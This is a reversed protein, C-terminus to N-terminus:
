NGNSLEKLKNLKNALQTLGKKQNNEVMYKIKADLAEQLTKHVKSKNKTIYLLYTVKGTPYVLARVGPIKTSVSKEGMGNKRKIRSLTEERYPKYSNYLRGMIARDLALGDYNIAHRVASSCTKCPIEQIYEKIAISIESRAYKLSPRDTNCLKCM